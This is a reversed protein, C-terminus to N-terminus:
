PKLHLQQMVNQKRGVSTFQIGFMMSRSRRKLQDKSTRYFLFFFELGMNLFFIDSNVTLYYRVQVLKIDRESVDNTCVMNSGIQEFKRYSDYLGWRM